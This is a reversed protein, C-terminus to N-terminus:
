RGPTVPVADSAEFHSTNDAYEESTSTSADHFTDADGKGNGDVGLLNDVYSSATTALETVCATSDSRRPMGPNHAWHGVDNLVSDPAQLQRRLTPYLRRWSHPTYRLAEETTMGGLIM